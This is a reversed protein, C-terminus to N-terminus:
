SINSQYIKIQFSLYGHFCLFLLYNEASYLGCACEGEAVVDASDAVPALELVVVVADVRDNVHVSYCYLLVRSLQSLM